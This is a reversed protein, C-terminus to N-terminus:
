GGLGDDRSNDSSPQEGDHSESDNDEDTVMDISRFVAVAVGVIIYLVAVATLFSVGVGGVTRVVVWLVVGFSLAYAIDGHQRIGDSRHRKAYENVSSHYMIGVFALIVGFLDAISVDPSWAGLLIPFLASGVLVHHERTVPTSERRRTWWWCLGLGALVLPWGVAFLQITFSPSDGRGVTDELSRVIFFFVPLMLFGPWVFGVPRPLVDHHTKGQQVDVVASIRPIERLAAWSAYVAGALLLVMAGVGASVASLPIEGGYVLMELASGAIIPFSIIVISLTGLPVILILILCGILVIGHPSRSAHSVSDYLYTELDFVVDPPGYSRGSFRQVGASVLIASLFLLEGIPSSILLVVGVMGALLAPVAASAGLVAWSSGRNLLGKRGPAALDQRLRRKAETNDGHSVRGLTGFTRADTPDMRWGIQYLYAAFLSGFATLWVAASAIPSFELRGGGTQTPLVIVIGITGAAFILRFGDNEVPFSLGPYAKPALSFSAYGILIWITISELLGVDEIVVSLVVLVADAVTGDGPTAEPVRWLLDFVALGGLRAKVSRKLKSVGRM